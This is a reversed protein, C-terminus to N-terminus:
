RIGAGKFEVTGGNVPVCSYLNFVWNSELKHSQMRPYIHGGECYECLRGQAIPTGGCPSNAGYETCGCRPLYATPALMRVPTPLPEAIAEFRIDVPSPNDRQGLGVMAMANQMVAALSKLIQSRLYHGNPFQLKLVFSVDKACECFPRAIEQEAQTPLHEWAFPELLPDLSM